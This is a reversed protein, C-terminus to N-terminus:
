VKKIKSIPFPHIMGVYGDIIIVVEPERSLANDLKNCITVYKIIGTTSGACKPIKVKDGVRFPLNNDVFFNNSITAIKKDYEKRANNKDIRANIPEFTTPACKQSILKNPTINNEILIKRGVERLGKDYAEMLKSKFKDDSCNNARSKFDEFPAIAIIYEEYKM